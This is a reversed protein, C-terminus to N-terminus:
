CEQIIDDVLTQEGLPVLHRLVRRRDFGDGAIEFEAFDDENVM